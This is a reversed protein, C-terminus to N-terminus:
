KTSEEHQGIALLLETHAAGPASRERLTSRLPRGIRRELEASVLTASEDRRASLAREIRARTSRRVAMRLGVLTLGGLAVMAVVAGLGRDSRFSDVVGAVGVAIVVIAVYSLLRVAGWWSPPEALAVTTTAGVTLATRAVEDDVEDGIAVLAARTGPDLQRGIDDVLRRIPEPVGSGIQSGAADIQSVPRRSGVLASVSAADSAAARQAAMRLDRDVAEAVGTAVENRAETWRPLLGTAGVGGLFGVLSDAATALEELIRRTIVQPTSGLERITSILEDLGIPDGQVPDGATLVVRPGRVGDDILSRELDAALEPRSAPAVRDIQNLAFVFRSSHAALPEILERHLRADQYKEPDLVWVVADVLPVLRDVTQRHDIVVSDTDPLDIVVLWPHIDQGVRRAVGLDDLLRTVGPEPSSPIWAVPESTTPRRAGPVSVEEGALANLLSSKGSGTGGALAVVVTDGLYGLRRRAARGTAAARELDAEPALGVSSAVLRDYLDLVERVDPMSM